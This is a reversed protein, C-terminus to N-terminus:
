EILGVLEKTFKAIEFSASALKQKLVKHDSTTKAFEGQLKSMKSNSALDQVIDNINKITTTLEQGFRSSRIIQLLAQIAQVISDTQGELYQKLEDIELVPHKSSSPSTDRTSLNSLVASLTLDDDSNSSEEANDAVPKKIKLLKVLDVIALTLNKAATDLLSVPSVGFGTAHNKAATMLESLNTSIKSMLTNVSDKQNAGEASTIKSKQKEVSETISTCIMVVSKMAMLVGNSADSRAATLLDDMTVQYTAIKDMEIVGDLHPTLLGNEDISAKPATRIYASTAKIRWLEAKTEELKQQMKSKEEVTLKLKAQTQEHRSILEENKKSIKEIESLLTAVEAKISNGVNRKVELQCKYDKLLREHDQKLSSLIAEQHQNLSKQKELEAQLEKVQASGAVSTSHYEAMEDSYKRANAIEAGHNVDGNQTPFDEKPSHRTSNSNSNEQKPIPRVEKNEGIMHGLDAMLSDLSDFNVLFDHSPSSAETPSPKIIDSKPKNPLVTFQSPSKEQIDGDSKSSYVSTSMSQYNSPQSNLSRPKEVSKVEKIREEKLEPYRRELECFVDSALDKFRIKSLTALKQRAQNRKPHFDDSVPLFPEKESNLMRRTLEDYVDTSLEQFQQRSLKTLKERASKRQGSIGSQERQLYSSLYTKLGEHHTIALDTAM